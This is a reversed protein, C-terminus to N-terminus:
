KCSYVRKLIEIEITKIHICSLKELDEMRKRTPAVKLLRHNAAEWMLLTIIIYKIGSVIYTYM